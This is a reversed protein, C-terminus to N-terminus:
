MTAGIQWPVFENDGYGLQESKTKEGSATRLIHDFIEQGKQEITVGDLIDGCNIDMDDLMRKYIDHNTALKISPTPKCGYASGRGTTFALVNCGGAVQGTAAVPDYGPTDMYVFGKATVPEAYHYVAELTTTGGKAAAGLSKELITTLGGAKNGPSPNNDMSGDNRACYDEWWRIIGVLKEGVEKNRARRTLLHEAGYIEPTESLVATGGHRVLLDVAAGLAPNATIGSYGDSGGCQLALM